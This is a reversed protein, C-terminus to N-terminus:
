FRRRQLERRLSDISAAEVSIAPQGREFYDDPVRTQPHFVNRWIPPLRNATCVCVSAVLLALSGIFWASRFVHFLGLAQMADTLFGFRGRQLELWASEAAPNGRMEAPLQPILVGALAALALFSILALAFRVSTLGRWTLRLPDIESWRLRAARAQFSAGAM